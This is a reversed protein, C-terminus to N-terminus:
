LSIGELDLLRDDKCKIKKLSYWLTLSAKVNRKTIEGVNPLPTTTTTLIWIRENNKPLSNEDVLERKYFM